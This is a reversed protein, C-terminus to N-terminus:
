RAATVELPTRLTARIHAGAPLVVNGKKTAAAYGAGAAAGVVGGIVTSKTNGGLVRGLIAGAAAGIGVKKADGGNVKQGHRETQISDIRADLGYTQGDIVVSSLSLTLTGPENPNPAPKVATITGRVLSGAPIAVSGDGSRVDGVVAATFADGAKNTKSSITDTVALDLEAGSPASVTPVPPPAPAREAPEGAKRDLTPTGRDFKGAASSSKPAVPAREIAGAPTSTTSATDNAESKRCGLAIVSLVALAAHAFRNRKM